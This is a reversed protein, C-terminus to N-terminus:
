ILTTSAIQLVAARACSTGHRGEEGVKAEFRRNLYAWVALLGLGTYSDRRLSFALFLVDNINTPLTSLIM